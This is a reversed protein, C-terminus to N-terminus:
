AGKATFRDPGCCYDMCLRTYQLASFLATGLFLMLYPHSLLVSFSCLSIM